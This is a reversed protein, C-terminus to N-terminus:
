GGAGRRLLYYAQGTVRGRVLTMLDPPLRDRVQGLKEDEILLDRPGPRSMYEVVSADTDLVEAFRGTYFVWAERKQETTGFPVDPRLRARVEAAFRSLNEYREAWPQVVAVVLLISAAMSAVLAPAATRPRGARRLLIAALGGAVLLLGIGAAAPALDPYRRLALRPLLVALAAGACTWAVLPGTMRRRAAPGPESRGGEALALLRGVLLSAAPYLPIIYLGRKGTSFSFFLGIAAIWTVLFLTEARRTREESSFAEVVASPLFLVWPFFSAPFEWLYYWVPQRGNWADLYRQGTQHWIIKMAEGAGLRAAWPVLWALTVVLYLAIGSPLFLRRLARFDRELCLIPLVALLPLVLGVPGKALTALGMLVWALRNSTAASEQRMRARWLLVIAGLVFLNLTMDISAWRAREAIQPSTAFVLAALFGTRRDYLWVGLRMVLFLAVIGSLASPLRAAWEDVGGRPLAFLNIAWFFLPPKDTYLGHNVSLVIHDGSDWMERAVLGFRPEDPPWLDHEGLRWLYLACGLALLIFLLRRDARAVEPKVAGELDM